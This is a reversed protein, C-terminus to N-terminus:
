AGSASFEVVNGNGGPSGSGDGVLVRCDNIADLFTRIIGFDRKRPTLVLRPLAAISEDDAEEPLAVVQEIRGEVLLGAFTENLEALAEDAIRQRIRVVMRERVWRYSHFVRYFQLVEAVAKEASHTSRFLHFDTESILGNGLLDEKVFRLWTEWYRGGPQDLLIIPVIQTKGTQMLTLAEFSEDQTGFGGPCLVFAHTEKMFNLKRTFFYKFDLLKEDGRITANASQEFPLRINLGFSHDAGAGRQAAGMIGDGGGTIIMYDERVMLRAFERALKFEGDDSATRASGFVAVKRRDRYPAFVRAADGMERISREVLKLDGLDAGERGLRLATKILEEVLHASRGEAVEAVLERIRLDIDKENM